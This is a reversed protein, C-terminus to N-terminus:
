SIPFQPGQIRAIRRPSEEIVERDVVQMGSRIRTPLAGRASPYGRVVLPQDSAKSPGPNLTSLSPADSM